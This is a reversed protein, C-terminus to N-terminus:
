KEDNTAIEMLKVIVEEVGSEETLSAVFKEFLKKGEVVKRFPKEPPSNGWVYTGPPWKRPKVSDVLMNTLSTMEYLNKENREIGLFQFGNYMDSQEALSPFFSSSSSSASELFDKAIAGRSRVGTLRKTSVPQSISLLNGVTGLKNIGLWTGKEPDQIDTGSLVGNRWDLELTPRDLSEDRNNLIILKYRSDPNDSIFIFTICMTEGLKFTVTKDIWETPEDNQPPKAMRNEYFVANDDRDVILISHSRTGYRLIDLPFKVMISGIYQYWELPRQTQLALQPDPIFKEENTAIEMLKEIIEEVETEETLSSIFKEFLKKGEVVKRFPKEPPSNGWVTTGAPWERPGVTEVLKNTLSTMQYLNSDNRELGLFQFGNYSSSQEALEAFFEDRTRTSELYEKAVAGSCRDNKEASLVGNRWDLELTPRDVCEDRNNLIILKYKSNQDDSVYIFCMCM